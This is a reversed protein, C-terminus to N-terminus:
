SKKRQYVHKLIAALQLGFDRPCRTHHYRLTDNLHRYFGWIEIAFDTYTYIYTCSDCCPKPSRVYIYTRFYSLTLVVGRDAIGQYGYYMNCLAVLRYVLRVLFVPIDTETHTHILSGACVLLDREVVGLRVEEQRAGFLRHYRGPSGAFRGKFFAIYFLSSYFNVFQLVYLKFTLSSDYETQTRLCEWNTLKGAMFSCAQLLM